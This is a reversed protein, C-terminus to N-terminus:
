QNTVPLYPLLEIKRGIKLEWYRRQSFESLLKKNEYTGLNHAWIIDQNKLDAGNFVWEFMGTVNETYSVFVLDPEPSKKLQDIIVQRQMSELFKSHYVPYIKVFGWALDLLLLLILAWYYKQCSSALRTSLSEIITALTLVTVVIFPASYHSMYHTQFCISAIGLLFLVGLFRGRKIQFILPLFIILYVTHTPIASNLHAKIRKSTEIFYNQISSFKQVTIRYDDEHYIKTRPTSYNKMGWDAQFFLGPVSAQQEEYVLYPFKFVSGMCAYNQSLLIGVALIAPMSFSFVRRWFFQTQRSRWFYRLLLASTPVVLFLGEYPRTLALMGCGVGILFLDVSRAERNIILPISGLILVAAFHSPLGAWYSLSWFIVLPNLLLILLTIHQIKGSFWVRVLRGAALNLLVLLCLMGSLPHGLFMGLSLVIGIGPFYRALYNPEFILGFSQFFQPNELPPNCLRNHSLTEAILLYGFEDFFVPGPLYCLFLGVWITVNLFQLILSLNNILM